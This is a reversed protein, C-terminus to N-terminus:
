SAEVSFEPNSSGRGFGVLSVVALNRGSLLVSAAIGAAVIPFVAPLIFSRFRTEAHLAAALIMVLFAGAALALILYIATPIIQQSNM